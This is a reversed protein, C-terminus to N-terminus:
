GSWGHAILLERVSRFVFGPRRVIDRWLFHAISWGKSQLYMDRAALRAFDDRSEFKGWGDAEAGVKWRPWGFDLRYPGVEVQTEFLPLPTSGLVRQLHYELVSESAKDAYPWTALVDRVPGIGARGQRSHRAVVAAIRRRDILGALLMREIVSSVAQPEVAAIDLLTRGPLTTRMQQRRIPALEDLDRPVHAIVGPLRPRFRRDGVIIDIPDNEDANWVGWLEGASRHSVITHEGASATAAIMRQLRSAPYGVLIAVGKHMRHLVGSDHLRYWVRDTIGIERAQDRTIVGHQAEALIRLRSIDM